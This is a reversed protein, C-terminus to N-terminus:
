DGRLSRGTRASPFHRARLGAAERRSSLLSNHKRRHHLPLLEGTGFREQGLGASLDELLTENKAVCFQVRSRQQSTLYSQAEKNAAEILVPSFDTGIASEVKFGDRSLVSVLHLLNMGGGCGFELM